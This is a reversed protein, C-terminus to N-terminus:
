VHMMVVMNNVGYIDTLNKSELLDTFEEINAKKMDESYFYDSDMRGVPIGGTTDIEVMDGCTADTIRAGKKAFGSKRLLKVVDQFDYDGLIFLNEKCLNNVEYGYENNGIVDFYYVFQSIEIGSELLERVKDENKMVKFM